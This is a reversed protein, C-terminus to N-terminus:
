IFTKEKFMLCTTITVCLSSSVDDDAYSNLSFLISINISSSHVNNGVEGGEKKIRTKDPRPLMNKKKRRDARKNQMSFFFYLASAVTFSM